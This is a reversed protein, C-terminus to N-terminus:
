NVWVYFAWVVIGVVAILNVIRLTVVIRAPQVGWSRLARAGAWQLAALVLLLVALIAWGLYERM